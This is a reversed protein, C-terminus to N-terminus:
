MSYKEFLPKAKLDRILGHYQEFARLVRKPMILLKQYNTQTTAGWVMICYIVKSYFLAYYLEMQLWKPVVPSLKYLCGATRSLEMTLKQIHTNWTLGENFWVGLFKQSTVQEIKRGEFLITSNYLRPKNIPAFVIYKTKSVNLQLKNVSLWGSLQHLYKNVHHELELISTGSFFINTDDAYMILKPSCPIDCLDNIYIIFLLPGLISGQLVGRTIDAYASASNNMRVYQRRNILYNKLLDLVVGRVGYKSLKHTLVDHYVSDFAKRFDIFLGLSYLRQEINKILEHKINLLAKECSKNKQFGYQAENIVNYKSFFKYLRTNIANEFVKSAVPLVSIPRYNTFQSKDGGKFVPCVRAIKLRDPFIGTEFMANIIHAIIPAIIDAVHKLPTSKIEDYGAAVNNKIQQILKLVEDSTVPTLQVSNALSFESSVFCPVVNSDNKYEASTVFYENM